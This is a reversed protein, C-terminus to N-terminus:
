ASIAARIKQLLVEPSFPKGIFVADGWDNSRSRDMGTLVFVPISRTPAEDRLAAIVESGEMKPMRQDLLIVDPVREFAIRLAEAGDEVCVVEYGEDELVLELTLRVSADDEAILVM